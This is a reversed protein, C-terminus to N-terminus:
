KKSRKSNNFFHRGAPEDSEDAPYLVLIIQATTDGTNKWCHPLHAEFVLSDGPKLCYGKDEIQYRVTGTLCYVFEHGTHVIMQDGSGSGPILDVIFPQVSNRNLDKGLNHMQTNGITAQPRQDGSTFVVQKAVQESEFFTSIPIDLALALQQLTGVSPSSKGNEVLSLTNINLESREALARLSFGRKNRLERLKHGVLIEASKEVATNFVKDKEVGRNDM